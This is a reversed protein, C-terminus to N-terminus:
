VRRCSMLLALLSVNGWEDAVGPQRSVFACQCPLPNAPLNTTKCRTHAMRRYADLTFIHLTYGAIAEEYIQMRLELPLNFLPSQEQWHSEKGTKAKRLRTKPKPVDGSESDDKENHRPIKSGLGPISVLNNGITLAEGEGIRPALVWPTRRRKEREQYERQRRRRTSPLKYMSCSYVFDSLLVCTGVVCICPLCVITLAIMSKERLKQRTFPTLVPMKSTIFLYPTDPLFPYLPSSISLSIQLHQYLHLPQLQSSTLFDAHKSGLVQRTNSQARKFSVHRWNCARQTL